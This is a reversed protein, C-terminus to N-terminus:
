SSQDVIVQLLPLPIERCIRAVLCPFGTSIPQLTDALSQLQELNADMQGMHVVSTKNGGDMVKKHDYMRFAVTTRYAADIPIAMIGHVLFNRRDAFEAFNGFTSVLEESYPMIPGDAEILKQLRKLKSEFGFPLEGLENYDCHQRARLILETLAFEIGSYRQIFLGRLYIADKITKLETADSMTPM